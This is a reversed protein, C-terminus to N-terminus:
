LHFKEAINFQAMNVEILKTETEKRCEQCRCM